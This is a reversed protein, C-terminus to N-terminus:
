GPADAVPTTRRDSVSGARWFSFAELGARCGPGHAGARWRAASATGGDALGMAPYPKETGARRGAARSRRGPTRVRGVRGAAATRALAAGGAPRRTAFGAGVTRGAGSAPQRSLRAASRRRPVARITAREDRFRPAARDVAARRDTQRRGGLGSLGARHL